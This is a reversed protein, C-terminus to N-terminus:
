EIHVLCSQMVAIASDHANESTGACLDKKVIIPINPVYAKILLANSIVCIDTCLGCLTISDIKCQKSKNYIYEALRVSGFTEKDFVKNGKVFPKLEGIISHGDTGNICHEVSLCKGEETSLYDKDHTDRTFVVEGDFSKVEDVVRNVISVANASGLSGSVFDNQMDVVVLIHM